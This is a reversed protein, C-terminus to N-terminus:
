RRRCRHRERLGNMGGGLTSWSSGDWKAIYNANLGGAMTFQGGVYVDAAM